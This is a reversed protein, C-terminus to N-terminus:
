AKKLYGKIARYKVHTVDNVVRVHGDADSALKDRPQTSTYDVEVECVDEQKLLDTVGKIIGATDLTIKM